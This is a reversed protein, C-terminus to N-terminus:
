SENRIHIVYRGDDETQSNRTEQKAHVQRDNGIRLLPLSFSMYVKGNDPQRTDETEKHLKEEEPRKSGSLSSAVTLDKTDAQRTELM